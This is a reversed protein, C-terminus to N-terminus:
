GHRVQKLVSALDETVHYTQQGVEIVQDRQGFDMVADVDPLVDKIPLDFHLCFSYLLSISPRQKGSEINSITSREVHLINALDQQSTVPTNSKRTQKLLEGIYRYLASEDIM